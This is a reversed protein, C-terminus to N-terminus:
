DIPESSLHKEQPPSSPYERDLRIIDNNMRVAEKRRFHLYMLTKWTISQQDGRLRRQCREPLLEM